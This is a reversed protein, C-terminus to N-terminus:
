PARFKAINRYPEYSVFFFFQKHPIVPGGLTFSMNVESM